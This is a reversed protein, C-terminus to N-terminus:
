LVFGIPPCSISLLSSARGIVFTGAARAPSSAVAFGFARPMPLRQSPRWGRKARTTAVGLPKTSARPRYPRGRPGRPGSCRTCKRWSRRLRPPGSGRLGTERVLVGVQVVGNVPLAFLAVGSTGLGLEPLPASSVPTVPRVCRSYQVQSLGPADGSQGPELPDPSAQLRPATISACL